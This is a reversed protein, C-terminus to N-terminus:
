WYYVLRMNNMNIGRTINFSNDRRLISILIRLIDEVPGITPIRLKNDTDKKRRSMLVYVDYARIHSMTARNKKWRIANKTSSRMTITKMESMIITKTITLNLNVEEDELLSMEDKYKAKYTVRGEEGNSTYEIYLNLM